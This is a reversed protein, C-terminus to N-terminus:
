QFGYPVLIEVGQISPTQKPGTQLGTSLIQFRSFGKYRLADVAGVLAHAKRSIRSGTAFRILVSSIM